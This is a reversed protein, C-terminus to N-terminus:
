EEKGIESMLERLVLLNGELRDARQRVDDMEATLRENEERLLENAAWLAAWRGGDVLEAVQRLVEEASREIHVPEYFAEVRAIDSGDPLDEEFPTPEVVPEAVRESKSHARQHAGIARPSDAVKGCRRCAYDETGDSWTRAIVAESDEYVVQGKSPVTLKVRQYPGESVIHRAAEAAKAAQREAHAHSKQHGFVGAATPHTFDCGPYRCAFDTRPEEEVQTPEQMPEEKKKKKPLWSGGLEDVVAKVFQRRQSRRLKLADAIAEALDWGDAPRTTAYRCLHKVKSIFVSQRLGGNDPLNFHDGVEHSFSVGRVGLNVRWGLANALLALAAVDDGRITSVDLREITTTM